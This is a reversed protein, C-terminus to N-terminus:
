PRLTVALTTHAALTVPTATIALVTTSGTSISRTSSDVLRREQVESLRLTVALTIDLTVELPRPLIGLM